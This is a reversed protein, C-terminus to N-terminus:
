FRLMGPELGLGLRGAVVYSNPSMADHKVAAHVDHVARELGCTEFIATDGAAAALMDVIRAAREAAHACAVRFIARAQMLRDGGVDTAAMLETMAEVLFARAARHTAEARGVMAQVTERDRLQSTTGLRAKSNALETFTAIAGRAIGLPVVSVTWAFVSLGPM